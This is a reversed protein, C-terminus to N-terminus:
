RRAEFLLTASWAEVLMDAGVLGVDEECALVRARVYHLDRLCDDDGWDFLEIFGLDLNPQRLQREHWTWESGDADRHCYTVRVGLPGFSPRVKLSPYCGHTAREARWDHQEASQMLVIGWFL